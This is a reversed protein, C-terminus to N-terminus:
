SWGILGLGRESCVKFYKCLDSHEMEAPSARGVELERETEYDAMALYMEKVTEPPIWEAYLSEGTVELVFEAYV